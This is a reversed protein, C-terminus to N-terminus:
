FSTILQRIAQGQHLRDMGLNIDELGMRHTVLRDVPLLGRRYLGIYRPLDRIPVASGMYSGRITREEGTLTVAPIAFRAQPPPLGATVLEGGRRAIQYGLELAAVAGALEVVTDVGGKTADRVAQVVHEDAANFLDTAGFSKAAELKQDNTDIAIIRGAGAAVAGMLGALGVGGLGIIAVTSGPRVRASNFVAGVGTLVACGFLAAEELSLDPEVKVLSHRSMVAHEAFCSVGTQHNLPVSECHLAARAPFCRATLM